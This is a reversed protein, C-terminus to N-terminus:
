SARSAFMHTLRRGARQGFSLLSNLVPHRYPRLRRAIAAKLLPDAGPQARILDDYWGFFASQAPNARFRDYTGERAAVASASRDFQRYRSLQRSTVYTDCRLFLKAWLSQDEYLAFRTEFGGVAVVCSRRAFFSCTCPIDGEQDVLIRRALEPPAHLRETEVGLREHYDPRSGDDWFWRTAGYVADTRPNDDLIRAVVELADPEYLDDADLFGLVEGAALEIGRNRSAAAGRNVGGPHRALRIRGDSLARQGVVDRTADTSGDDVVILEWDPLTQRQVSAIADGITGELNLVPMIISFRPSM